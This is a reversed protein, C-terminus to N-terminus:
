LVKMLGIDFFEIIFYAAAMGPVLAGYWSVKKHLVARVANVLVTYVVFVAVSFIMYVVMYRGPEHGTNYAYLMILMFIERDGSAFSMFSVAMIFAAPFLLTYPSQATFSRTAAAYVIEAALAGWTVDSIVTHEAVDTYVHLMLVCWLFMRHIDFTEIPIVICVCSIILAAMNRKVVGAKLLVLLLLMTICAAATNVIVPMM